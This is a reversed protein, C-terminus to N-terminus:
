GEYFSRLYKSRIPHRLKQLAKAEIQRIRERTVDFDQGVEELTHDRNEDIGFRMRVVKEERPTLTGLAHRTLESLNSFATADGPNRIKDDAIFDQLHSDEDSGIPTELSIPEKTIELIRRVKSLPMKMKKALEEPTPTRGFEQVLERSTRAVKNITEIMHVPIRITKAQDAIGRTIAQRIWWTAYTSFKYGRRYEFKDVAKMLGINGEQILDLFQLGRNTYKKAISIVLRLNAEILQSKARKVKRNEVNLRKVEKKFDERTLATRAIMSDIRSRCSQTKEYIRRAINFRYGTEEVIRNAIIKKEKESKAGFWQVFLEDARDLAIRMDKSYKGLQRITLDIKEKHKLMVLCMTDIQQSNFNIGQVVIRLEDRHMAVKKQQAASLNEGGAQIKQMATYHDKVKELSELIRVAAIEEDEIVNDEEDLGSVIHMARIKNLKLKKSLDILYNIILNSNSFIEILAFQGEEIKKAVEVEGERTLLSINGMERLYMRVPDDTTTDAEPELNLEEKISNETITDDSIDSIDERKNLSINKSSDMVEIDIDALINLIRELQDSNHTDLVLHTNIEDLTVFGKERGEAILEKILVTYNKPVEQSIMTSMMNM